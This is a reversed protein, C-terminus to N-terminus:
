ASVRNGIFRLGLGWRLRWEKGFDSNVPTDTLAEAQIGLKKFKVLYGLSGSALGGNLGEDYQRDNL